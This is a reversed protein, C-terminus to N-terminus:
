WSSSVPMSLRTDQIFRWWMDMQKQKAQPCVSTSSKAIEKDEPDVGCQGYLEPVLRRALDTKHSSETVESSAVPDKTDNLVRRKCTGNTSSTCKKVNQGNYKVLEPNATHTGRFCPELDNLIKGDLSRTYTATEGCCGSKYIVGDHYRSNPEDDWIHPVVCWSEDEDVFPTHCRVCHRENM